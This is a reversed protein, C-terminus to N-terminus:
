VLTEGTAPNIFVVGEHSLPHFTIPTVFAFHWPGEQSCRIKKIDELAGIAVKLPGQKPRWTPFTVRNQDCMYSPLFKEQEWLYNPLFTRNM